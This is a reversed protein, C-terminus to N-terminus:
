QGGTGPLNEICTTEEVNRRGGGMQIAALGESVTCPGGGGGGEGGLFRADGGPIFRGLSSWDGDIGWAVADRSPEGGWGGWSIGGADLPAGAGHAGVMPGVRPGAATGGM